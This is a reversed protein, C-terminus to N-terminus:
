VNLGAIVGAEETSQRQSDKFYSPVIIVVNKIKSRTYAEAIEHMKSLVVASIEEPAFQKEEDKYQVIIKPKSGDDGVVKFPWLKIDNQISANNFRRGILWKVNSVALLLYCSFHNEVRM